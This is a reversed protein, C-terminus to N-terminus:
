SSVDCHFVWRFLSITSGAHVSWILPTNSYYTYWCTPPSSIHLQLLYVLKYSSLLTSLHCLPVKIWSEIVKQQRMMSPISVQQRMVASYMTVHLMTVNYCQLMTVNYCQLMGRRELAWESWTVYRYCGDPDPNQLKLNWLKKNVCISRCCSCRLRKTYSSLITFCTFCM